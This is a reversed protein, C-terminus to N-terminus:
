CMTIGRVRCISLTPSILERWNMAHFELVMEVIGFPADAGEQRPKPRHLVLQLHPPQGAISIWKLEAPCYSVGVPHM